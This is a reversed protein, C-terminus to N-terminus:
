HADLGYASSIDQPMADIIRALARYWDLGCDIYDAVLTDYDPVIERIDIVPPDDYTDLRQWAALRHVGTILQECDAVLPAGQWGEAIMSQYLRDVKAKDHVDHLPYLEM